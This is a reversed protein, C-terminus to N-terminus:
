FWVQLAICHRLGEVEVESLWFESILWILDAPRAATENDIPGKL